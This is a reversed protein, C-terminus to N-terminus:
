LVIRKKAIQILNMNCKLTSTQVAFLLVNSFTKHIQITKESPLEVSYLIFLSLALAVGVFQHHLAGNFNSYIGM